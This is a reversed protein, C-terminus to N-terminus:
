PTPTPCDHHNISSDSCAYSYQNLDVMRDSMLILNFRNRMTPDSRRQHMKAPVIPSLSAIEDLFLTGQHAAEFLGLRGERADTFAGKEHGFLESEALTDSLTACNIEVLPRNARPGAYHIWRALASKGTGTEGSILVPPLRDALKFDTAVIKELQGKLDSLSEGFFFGGEPELEQERRHERLRNQKLVEGSREFVIPLENFDFPKVLYDRAGLKIATVASRVGGDATMVVVGCSTPLHRQRLLDLGDGDPLHIDLLAYDFSTGALEDKAEALTAATRVRAGQQKLYSALRKRLLPEDEIVLIERQELPNTTM